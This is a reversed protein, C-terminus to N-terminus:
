VREAIPADLGVPNAAVLAAAHREAEARMADILRAGYRALFPVFNLVREQRKGEPYLAGAATAVDRMMSTERRKVAALYRREMREVRHLLSRRLGQLSAPPVLEDRDSVELAAVNSEVDQRLRRLAESVEESLAAKALRSEVAHRDRLEERSVGLRSLTREIRPELITASWRPLPLPTPVKLEDAAASVQAFYALEGPGAVYAASPMIFREVIPRLLVNAGLAQTEATTVLTAADPVSVRRKQGSPEGAFVLSLEPLHEVQPDYGAARIADYRKRLAREVAGAAVLARSLVPKAARRLAIHSADLVAIGLPELLGRMQKLYAGGLTSRSTYAERVVDLAQPEAASGCAEALQDVLQEVGLMAVDNMPIGAHAPRALRLTRVGGGPELITAGSAEDFDADDTAAWFVPAVAIGTERELRDALALSSVAKVLTYLPGGFLAAQQGTSIVVGDGDIVRQLREAAAGRPDLAPALERLWSENRSARVQDLYARWAAVGRPRALYWQHLEGRQAAQALPSGGLQETIVRPLTM